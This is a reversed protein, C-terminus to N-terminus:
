RTLAEAQSPSWGSLFQSWLDADARVQIVVQDVAEDLHADMGLVTWQRAVIAGIDVAGGTDAFITQSIRNLEDRLAEPAVAECGAAPATQAPSAARAPVWSALLGALVLLAVARYVARYSGRRGRVKGQMARRD